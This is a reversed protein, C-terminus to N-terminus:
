LGFMRSKVPGTKPPASVMADSSAIFIGNESTVASADELTLPNGFNPDDISGITWNIGGDTSILYGNDNGSIILENDNAGISIFTAVSDSIKEWSNGNDESLWIGSTGDNFTEEETSVYLEESVSSSQFLTVNGESPMNLKSVNIEEKFNATIEYDQDVTLSYPNDTSEVDGTWETFIYGDNPNAHLEIVEGEQYTEEESPSISGADSPTVNISVTYTTTEEEGNNNNDSDAGTGSDNCSIISVSFLFISILLLQRM